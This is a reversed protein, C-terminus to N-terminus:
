EVGECRNPNIAPFPITLNGAEDVHGGGLFELLGYRQSIAPQLNTMAMSIDSHGSEAFRASAQGVVRGEPDSFHAVGDGEYFICTRLWGYQEGFGNCMTDKMDTPSRTFISRVAAGGM